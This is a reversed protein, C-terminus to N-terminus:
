VSQDDYEDKQTNSGQDGGGDLQHHRQVCGSHVVGLCCFTFGCHVHWGYHIISTYAFGFFVAGPPPRFALRSRLWLRGDGGLRGFVRTAPGRRLRHNVGSGLRYDFGRLFGYDLRSGLRRLLRHNVRGFLRDYLRRLLRHDFGRSLRDYLRRPVSLRFLLGDVRMRAVILAIPRLPVEDDRLYRIFIARGVRDGDGPVVASLLGYCAGAVRAVSGVVVGGLVKGGPHSRGARHDVCIPAALEGQAVAGAAIRRGARGHRRGAGGGWAIAPILHGYDAADSQHAAVDLGRILVVRSRARM